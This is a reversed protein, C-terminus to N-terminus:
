ICRRVAIGIGFSPRILCAICYGSPRFSRLRVATGILRDGPRRLVVVVV